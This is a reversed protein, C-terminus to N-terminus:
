APQPQQRKWYKVVHMGHVGCEHVVPLIMKGAYTVGYMNFMIFATAPIMCAMSLANM